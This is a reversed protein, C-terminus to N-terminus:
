HSNYFIFTASHLLCYFTNDCFYQLQYQCYKEFATINTNTDATSKTLTNNNNNAITYVLLIILMATNCNGIINPVNVNV